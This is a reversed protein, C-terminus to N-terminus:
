NFHTDFGAPFMLDASVEGTDIMWDNTVTLITGFIHLSYLKGRNFQTKLGRYVFRPLM